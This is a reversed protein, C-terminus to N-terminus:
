DSLSIFFNNIDEVSLNFSSSLKNTLISDFLDRKKSQIELMVEEVSGKVILKYIFVPNKQGIRHSRGAAQEQVAPNWWPDYLIVTDAKTLNLGAGGAKLSILFISADGAQFSDVIDQRNKTEGTLKLYSYRKKILTGEIIKLMSTFQSFVLVKRGEDMLNDLLEMLEDLKASNEYAIEAQPLALLRPDCCIQRLKLLADLVLIQSRGLGKLAIAHRVKDEMTLRVGEYLDRQSGSLEIFRVIETKLPLEDMVESKTRRLMFPSIRGNLLKQKELDHNKEIPVRFFQRFQKSDGLLGPMLFHFLSWLEGLHNELPTGTLCIRHLADLQQIIKTTKTRSNKIYQAEDLILYYFKYALFRVKDRQMLGYTSIILDYDDFNIQHRDFGHFVLVKLDPTFKAAEAFWNGVLSTPAVILSAHKINGSEKEYQLNALAQVTKGLGMDDALIGAFGNSKLFQLWNLGQHQYDRLTTKLGKPIEIVPLEHNMLKTLKDRIVETGHWRFNIAAIAEEAEKLLALQYERMALSDKRKKDILGYALLIRLLPKIRRFEIQLWKNKEIPLNVLKSEPILDLEAIDIRHLLNVVLPVISIPKGDILIGLQYSFFNNTKEVYDSYWTLSDADIIEDGASVVSDGLKLSDLDYSLSPKVISLKEKDQLYFFCAVAHECKSRKQCDCNSSNEPWTKLDIRVNYIHGTRDKVRGLLLGDSLKIGLVYGQNYFKYGLELSAKAFEKQMKSLATKLM